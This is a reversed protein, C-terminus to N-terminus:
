KGTTAIRIQEDSYGGYPMFEEGLPGSNPKEQFSEVTRPSIDKGGNEAMEYWKGDWDKWEPQKVPEVGTEWVSIYVPYTQLMREGNWVPDAINANPCNSIVAYLDTNAYFEVGTGYPVQPSGLLELMTQNGKATHKILQHTQFNHNNALMNVTKRREVPDEIEHIAPIRNIGHTFNLHCANTGQPPDPYLVEQWEPSCHWQWFHRAWGEPAFDDPAEDAVMMCLSKMRGTHGFIHYGKEPFLGQFAGSSGYMSWDSLDPKIFIWDCVQTVEHRQEARLVQGPALPFADGTHGHLVSEYVLKRQDRKEEVEKLLRLGDKYTDLKQWAGKLGHGAFHEEQTQRKAM